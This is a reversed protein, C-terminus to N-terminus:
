KAPPRPEALLDESRDVPVGYRTLIEAHADKAKVANLILQGDWDTHPDTKIIHYGGVPAAFAGPVDKLSRIKVGNISEILVGKFDHYGANVDHPLVYSLFVPERQDPSPLGFEILNKFSTPQDRKDWLGAYNQTLPTFVMGAFVFYSPKRDYYPGQVLETYAKMRVELRLLKGDRLVELPVRDGAQHLSILYSMGLRRGDVMVTGNNALAHKDFSLLVDHDKLVGWASSEFLVKNIVVGTQGPKMGFYSRLSENELDATMVGLDPVKDYAGDKIDKLFRNIIPTPIVYGINEAGSGSYSQFSIGVLKGDKIVPGGSNGPNIAADTQIALLNHGSHTYAIVEIRSVVGETISLDDGGTPFGWAQLHDRQRPLDGLRMPASDKWFAPDEVKLVALESDHAVFLVTATHKDPEGAKRVQIYSQDSIVHANTLILGGEIIVGSGSMSEQVHMQWPAQYNPKQYTTFIRVVSRRTLEDASQARSRLPVLLLAAALLARM